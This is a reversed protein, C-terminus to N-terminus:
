PADEAFVKEAAAPGAGLELPFHLKALTSELARLTHLVYMQGSTVGMHAIRLVKGAVEELGGGILVGFDSRMMDIIVSSDVAAPTCIATLTNSAFEDSLPYPELGMGRVAARIARAALRNRRIRDALGEDLLLTLAEHLACTLQPAPEVVHRRYGWILTGGREPPIWMEIYKYLDFSFSRRTRRAAM